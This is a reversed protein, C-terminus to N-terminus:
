AGGQAPTYYDGEATRPDLTFKVWWHSSARLSAGGRFAAWHDGSDRIKASMPFARLVDSALNDASHGHTYFYGRRVTYVGRYLTVEDGGIHEAIQERTLKKNKATAM